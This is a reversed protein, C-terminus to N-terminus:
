LKSLDVVFGSIKHKKKLNDQYSDATAKNPFPGLLLKYAKEGKKGEAEKMLLNKFYGDQLSNAQKMMNEYSSFNGIQVGFGKDEVKLVQIKYLDGEEKPPVSVHVPSTSSPKPNDTTPTKGKLDKMSAVKPKDDVPPTAEAGNTVITTSPPTVVTTTAAPNNKELKVEVQVKEDNKIGLDNGAKRSLDVIRGKTFPGRDNVRVVVSKKTDTRTIRLLTGFPLDRHAATLKEKDYKEGSATARGQFQDSYCAALGSEVQAALSGAWLMMGLIIKALKM